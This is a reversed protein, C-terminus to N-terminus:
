DVSPSILNFKWSELGLGVRFNLESGGDLYVISQEISDVTGAFILDSKISKASVLDGPLPTFNSM